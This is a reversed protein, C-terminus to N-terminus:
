FYMSSAADLTTCSKIKEKLMSVEEELESLKRLIMANQNDQISNNGLVLMLQLGLINCITITSVM